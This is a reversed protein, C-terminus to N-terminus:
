LPQALAQVPQLSLARPYPFRGDAGADHVTIERLRVQELPRAQPQQIPFVCLKAIREHIEGAHQGIVRARLGVDPLQRRGGPKVCRPESRLERWAQIHMARQPPEPVECATLVGTRGWSPAPRPQCGPRAAPLSVRRQPRPTSMGVTRTISRSLTSRATSAGLPTVSMSGSLSISSPTAAIQPPM